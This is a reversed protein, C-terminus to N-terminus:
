IWRWRWWVRKVYLFGFTMKTRDMKFNSFYYFRVEVMDVAIMTDEVVTMMDEKKRMVEV